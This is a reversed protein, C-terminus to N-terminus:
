RAKHMLKRDQSLKIERRLLKIREVEQWMTFTSVGDVKTNFSAFVSSIKEVTAKWNLRAVENQDLQWTNTFQELKPNLWDPKVITAKYPENRALIEVEQYFGTVNKLPSIQAKNKASLIATKSEVLSSVINARLLANVRNYASLGKITDLKVQLRNAVQFDLTVAVEYGNVNLYSINLENWNVVYGGRLKDLQTQFRM